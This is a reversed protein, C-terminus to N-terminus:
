HGVSLVEEDDRYKDILYVAIGGYFFIERQEEPGVYNLSDVTINTFPEPLWHCQVRSCCLNQVLIKNILESRRAVLIFRCYVGQMAPLFRILTKSSEKSDMTM